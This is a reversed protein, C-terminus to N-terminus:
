WSTLLLCVDWRPKLSFSVRVSVCVCVQQAVHEVLEDFSMRDSPPVFLARLDFHESLIPFQRHHLHRPRHYTV